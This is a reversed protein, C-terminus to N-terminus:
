TVTSPKTNGVLAASYMSWISAQPPLWILRRAAQILARRVSASTRRARFRSRDLSISQEGRKTIRFGRM